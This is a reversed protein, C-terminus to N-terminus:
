HNTADDLPLANERLTEGDVLAVYAIGAPNGKRTGSGDTYVTLNMRSM